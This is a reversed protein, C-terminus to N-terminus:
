DNFDCIGADYKLTWSYAVMLAGEAEVIQNPDPSISQFGRDSVYLTVVEAGPISVENACPDFRVQVSGFYFEAGIEEVAAGTDSQVLVNQEDSLFLYHLQSENNPDFLEAELVVERDEEIMERTVRLVASKEDPRFPRIRPSLNPEERPEIPPSLMCGSFLIAGVLVGIFVVGVVHARRRREVRPSETQLLCAMTPYLTQPM